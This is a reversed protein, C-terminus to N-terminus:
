SAVAQLDAQLAVQDFGVPNKAGLWDQSFLTHAEDCYELWFAWTMQKLEGWTICIPGIANYAPCYVAHGGWSGPASPDNGTFFRKIKSFFGLSSTVDWVDQKQATLPLSLGIYVGAFLQISQRIHTTNKPAPDAYALLQHGDLGSKRYNNLVDIEVGGQDTSPDTPNYGDWDEYAKLIVDDSVTVESGLNATWVQIAHGIAAITCDGLQDNLMMGWEKIGATYDVSEPPSPLDALYRALRFTRGDKRPSRKGLKMMSHDAM